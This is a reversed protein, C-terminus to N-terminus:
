FKLSHIKQFNPFSNSNKSTIQCNSPFVNFMIINNKFYNRFLIYIWKIQISFCRESARPLRSQRILLLNVTKYIEKKYFKYCPLNGCLGIDHVDGAAFGRTNHKGLGKGGKGGGDRCSALGFESRSSRLGGPWPQIKISSTRGGCYQTSSSEAQNAMCGNTSM